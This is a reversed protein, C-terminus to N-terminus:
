LRNRRRQYTLIEEDYMNRDMGAPEDTGDSDGESASDVTPGEMGEEHVTSSSPQGGVPVEESAIPINPRSRRVETDVVLQWHPHLRDRVLFVQNCDQPFVFPEHGVRNDPLFEKALVRQIGCEDMVLTTSVGRANFKNPYWKARFLVPHV